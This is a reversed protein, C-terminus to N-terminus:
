QAEAVQKLRALDEVAKQRASRNILPKLLRALWHQYEFDARYTLQTRRDDLPQLEYTVTGAFTAPVTLRAQLLRNAEVRTLEADIAMRQDNNNRDEMVWIERAGVVTTQPTIQRVEVLWGLWRKLQAPESVFRYVDSAPRAIDISTEFRGADPRQGAVLLAAIALLLLAGLGVLGYLLWKM